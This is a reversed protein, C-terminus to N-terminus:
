RYRPAIRCPQKKDNREDDGDERRNACERAGQTISIQFIRGLNRRQSYREETSNNCVEMGDWGKSKRREEKEWHKRYEEENEKGGKGNNPM